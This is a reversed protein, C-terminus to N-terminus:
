FVQSTLAFHARLSPQASDPGSNDTTNWGLDLRANLYQTLRGRLGVGYGFLYGPRGELSRLGSSAIFLGGHEAFVLGQWEKEIKDPLFKLPFRVEASALYGKDAILYGESYGRVSSAGGLQMKEAFPLRNPTSQAEVRFLGLLGLPLQQIRTADVNFRTYAQNGGLAAFGNTMSLNALWRGKKDQEAVQVGNTLSRIIPIPDPNFRGPLKNLEANVQRLSKDDLYTTSDIFNLSSNGSLTWKRTIPTHYIPYNTFISFRTGESTITRRTRSLGDAEPIPGSKGANVDIYSFAGGVTWGKTNLPFQYNASVAKTRTALVVSASLSDGFGLLNSHVLTYSNRWLGINNRGMNDVGVYLHLPNHDKVEIEIDSTMPESGAKITAHIKDLLPNISLDLASQQLSQIKFVEGEKLTVRRRIYQRRLNKNGQIVVKGIRGEEVKIIVSGVAERIEQPPLVARSTIYGEAHYVATIEDLLKNLDSLGVRRDIWPNLKKELLESKVATVGTVKIEQLIFTDEGESSSAKSPGTDQENTYTPATKNANPDPIEHKEPLDEVDKRIVNADQSGFNGGGPVQQGMAPACLLLAFGVLLSIPKCYTLRTLSM